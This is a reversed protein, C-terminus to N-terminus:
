VLMVVPTWCCQCTWTTVYGWQSYINSRQHVQQQQSEGQISIQVWLVLTQLVGMKMKEGLALSSLKPSTWSHANHSTVLQLVIPTMRRSSLISSWALNPYPIVNVGIMYNRVILKGNEWKNIHNTTPTTPNQYMIKLYRSQTPMM